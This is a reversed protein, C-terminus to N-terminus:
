RRKRTEQASTKLDADTISCSFVDEIQKQLFKKDGENRM